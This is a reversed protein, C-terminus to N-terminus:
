DVIYGYQSYHSNEYISANKKDYSRLSKVDVNNLVVGLLNEVIAPERGLAHDIVDIKTSGWAIVYLYTDILPAAARTDVIPALPPLDVIVYDYSNRLSEFFTKATRSVM